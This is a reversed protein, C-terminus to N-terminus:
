KRKGSTTKEQVHTNEPVASTEKRVVESLHSPYLAQPREVVTVTVQTNRLSIFSRHKNIGSPLDAPRFNFYTVSVQIPQTEEQDHTNKPVACTTKAM